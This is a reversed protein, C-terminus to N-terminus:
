EKIQSKEAKKLDQRRKVISFAGVTSTTMGVLQFVYSLFNLFYTSPLYKLVMLFPLVCGLLVAIGGVWILTKSDSKLPRM